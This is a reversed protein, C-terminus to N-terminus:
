LKLYQHDLCVGEAKVVLFICMAVNRHMTYCLSVFWGERHSQDCHGCEHMCMFLSHSSASGQLCLPHLIGRQGLCSELSLTNSVPTFGGQKSYSSLPHRTHLAGDRPTFPHTKAQKTYQKPKETLSFCRQIAIAVHWCYVPMTDLRCCHSVSM